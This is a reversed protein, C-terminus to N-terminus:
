YGARVAYEWRVTRTGGGWRERAATEFDAIPDGGRADVYRTTASWTRMYGALQDLTWQVVLDFPPATVEDFPFPITRYGDEVYQRERPWYAGLTQHMCAHLLTDLAADDVVHPSMYSWAVLVGGPALVRRVERYFADLDFWHLAQAVTVLDVTGADLGSEEAPAVRYEVRAHPAAHVLQSASADTAIVRAFHEAVARAAQGSGTACDWALARRPSLTVLWGVLADPQTPRFEAYADAVRSFHDRFSPRPTSSM